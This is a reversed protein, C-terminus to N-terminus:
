EDFERVVHKFKHNATRPIADVLRWHITMDEGLLQTAVSVVEKMSDPDFDQAPVVRIEIQNPAIHAIQSEVIGRGRGTVHGFRGVHRGLPTVIIEDKRGELSELIRSNWRHKTTTDSSLRGIDGTDYRIYPVAKQTLDTVVIRGMEGDSVHEGSDSVIEVFCTLELLHMSGSNLQVAVSGVEGLGYNIYAPCGFGQQIISLHHPPTDESDLFIAIPKFNLGGYQILMQALYYLAHGYGTIYEPRFINLKDRYYSFSRTDLHFPSMQLQNDARNMVWFPPNTSSAPKIRSGGMRMRPRGYHCGFMAYYNDLIAFRARIGERGIYLLVPTGTSGSTYGKFIHKDPYGREVMENIRYRLDEKTVIPIERLDDLSNIRQPLRKQYFATKDRAHNVLEQIKHLQTDQIQQRTLNKYQELDYERRVAEYDGYRRYRNRRWAELAVLWEKFVWPSKDYLTQRWNAM